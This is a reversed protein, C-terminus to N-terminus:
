DILNGNWIPRKTILTNRSSTQHEKDSSLPSLLLFISSIFAVLMTVTVHTRLNNDHEQSCNDCSETRPFSFSVKLPQVVPASWVTFRFVLRWEWSLALLEESVDREHTAGAEITWRRPNRKQAETDLKCHGTRSKVYLSQLCWMDVYFFFIAESVWGACIVQECVIIVLMGKDVRDQECNEVLGVEYKLCVGEEM